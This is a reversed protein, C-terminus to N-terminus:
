KTIIMAGPMARSAGERREANQSRQDEDGQWYNMALVVVSRVGPLVKQPDRRKEAGRGIWDM